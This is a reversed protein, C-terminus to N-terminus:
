SLRAYTLWFLLIFSSVFVFLRWHGSTRDSDAFATWCTYIFNYLLAYNIDPFLGDSLLLVISFFIFHFRTLVASVSRAHFM